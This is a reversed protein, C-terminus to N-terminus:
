TQWWRGWYFCRCPWDSLLIAPHEPSGSPLSVHILQYCNYCISSDQTSAICYLFWVFHLRIQLSTPTLADIWPRISSRRLKISLNTGCCSIEKETTNQIVSEALVTSGPVLVEPLIRWIGGSVNGSRQGPCSRRCRWLTDKWHRWRQRFSNLKM